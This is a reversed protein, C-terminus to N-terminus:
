SIRQAGFLLVKSEVQEEDYKNQDSALQWYMLDCKTSGRNSSYVNPVFKCCVSGNVGCATIWLENKPEDDFDYILACLIWAQKRADENM